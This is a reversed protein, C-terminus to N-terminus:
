IQAIQTIQPKKKVAAGVTLKAPKTNFNDTKRFVPQVPEGRLLEAVRDKKVAKKVIKLVERYAELTYDVDKTSHSFTINHFGSWLIGRKILEQQMLSKLLLPDGASADFTILSRAPHGKCRTYDLGKEAALENYGEQLLEGVNALYTTVDHDRLEQITAQAAALSLAEGGFTSFFFVDEDLLAMVDARGTLVALPM